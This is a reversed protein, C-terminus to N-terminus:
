QLEVTAVVNMGVRLPRQPDPPDTFVIKVPIRQVVKTFNGTANDPPLLSFKAGTAPSLSDVRGHFVVDPYADVEIDVVQGPRMQQLQTEKFNALVWTTDDEVVAMLPQGSQILQGVEVNKKGIIGSTPATVTTYSLELRAADLAADAQTVRAKAQGIQSRAAKAQRVAADVRANLADLTSKSQEFRQESIEEKARLARYSEFDHQAGRAQARTAVVESNAAAAAAQASQVAAEANALEAEAQHVRAAIDKPDITVLVDGAQVRQNDDVKVASVYGSVRPLVPAIHGEIQADDTVAHTSYFRYENYGWWGGVVVLLLLVVLTIHRRRSSGSGNEDTMEEEVPEATEAEDGRVPERPEESNLETM